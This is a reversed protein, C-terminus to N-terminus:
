GPHNRISWGVCDDSHGQKPGTSLWGILDWLDVETYSYGAENYARIVLRGSHETRWLEVPHCDDSRVGDMVCLKPM